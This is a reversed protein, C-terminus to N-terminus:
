AKGSFSIEKLWAMPIPRTIDEDAFQWTHLGEEGPHWSFYARRNNVQTPFGVRGQDGDLLVIGLDRLETLADQFSNESQALEDKVQYRRQREPWALLRKNRDLSAEEPQLHLRSKRSALIDDVIRQVLPLMRQVTKLSLNIEGPEPKDSADPTRFGKSGSMTTGETSSLVGM